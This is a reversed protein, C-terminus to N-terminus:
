QAFYVKMVTWEHPRPFIKMKSNRADERTLFVSVVSIGDENTHLHFRELRRNYLAWYCDFQDKGYSM